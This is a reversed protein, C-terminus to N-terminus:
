FEFSNSWWEMIDNSRWNTSEAQLYRRFEDDVSKKTSLQRLTLHDLVQVHM